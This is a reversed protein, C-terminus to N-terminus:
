AGAVLVGFIRGVDKSDEYEVTMSVVQVKQMRLGDVKVVEQAFAGRRCM